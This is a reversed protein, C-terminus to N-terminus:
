SIIDGVLQQVERTKARDTFLLYEEPQYLFAAPVDSVLQEQFEFYLQKREELSLTKRADELIKDVKPSQYRAINTEQTSHWLSYQDPDGPTKQGILLAQFEKMETLGPLVRLKVDLGLAQWSQIIKQGLEEYLPLTTLTLETSDPNGLLTQARELDYEYRKLQHHYAWSNPDVPGDIRKGPFEKPVAYTLAQRVEKDSLFEDQNNYFIAVFRNHPFYSIPTIRSWNMLEEPNRIGILADVEGLKLAIKALDENPYFKIKFRANSGELVIFVFIGNSKKHSVVRYPGFGVLEEKILPQSLISPFPSYPNKLSFRLKNVGEFSVTVGPIELKVDSSAFPSGDTWVLQDRTEFVYEDGTENVQWALAMAPQPLGEEDLKTLGRSILKEIEPPLRDGPQMDSVIGLHYLQPGRRIWVQRQKLFFVTLTIIVTGVILLRYHRALALSLTIWFVRLLRIIRMM